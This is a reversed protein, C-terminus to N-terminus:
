TNSKEGENGGLARNLGRYPRKKVVGSPITQIEGRAVINEGKKKGGRNGRESNGNGSITKPSSFKGM